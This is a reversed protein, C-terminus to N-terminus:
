QWLLASNLGVTLDIDVVTPDVAICVYQACINQIGPPAFAIMLTLSFTVGFIVGYYLVGERLLEAAIMNVNASASMNSKHSPWTQILTLVIVTTDYLLPLWASAPAIHESNCNDTPCCIVSALYRVLSFRLGHHVSSRDM